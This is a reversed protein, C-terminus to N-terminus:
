FLSVFGFHIKSERFNFAGAPQKGVAYALKFMGSKTEFSLGMGIGLFNGKTNVEISKRRIDAGDLFTFLYSAPGILYRYEITAIVYQSAFISEEDFGRLTNIGGVQFLENTLLKESNVIGAKLATKLTSQRGIKYFRDLKGTMRLQSSNSSLTDYLSAFAFPKGNQDKTLSLITSNRQISRVGGAFRFSWEMGSRPNFIDDTSVYNMEIGINRNTLDLYGPLRKTGKIYNTDVGLLISSFQQFYLKATYRSSIAYQLGLRTTISLFISDKKLMNFQFDVGANTNFLYPKQFGVQLRPSKVQIQQWSLAIMEGGGFSNKLQMDAEGTLLLKGKIQNNSPMLGALLSLQSSRRPELYLNLTAGTGFLSLEWPKSELIFGSQAIRKSVTELISKKYISGPQINLYQSLFKKQIRISGNVVISDIHYLPGREVTLVASLKGDYFVSSDFRVAAFPYGNNQFFDLLHDKMESFEEPKLITGDKIFPKMDYGSLDDQVTSDIKLKGWSYKTGLHVLVKTSSPTKIMSDLSAALYGNRQLLPLLENKLFLECESETKFNRYNVVFDLDLLKGKDVDTIELVHKDQAISNESISTMM